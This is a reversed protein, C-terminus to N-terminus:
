AALGVALLATGGPSDMEDVMPGPIRDVGVGHLCPLPRLLLYPPAGSFSVLMASSRSFNPSARPADSSKRPRLTASSV